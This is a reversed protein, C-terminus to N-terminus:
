SINKSTASCIKSYIISDLQKLAQRYELTPPIPLREMWRLFPLRLKNIYEIIVTIQDSIRDVETMSIENKGFLLKSIISLTLKTMEKHINVFMGDKWNTNIYEM